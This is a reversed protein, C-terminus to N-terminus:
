QLHSTCVKIIRLFGGVITARDAALLGTAAGPLDHRVLMRSVMTGTMPSTGVLAPLGTNLLRAVQGVRRRAFLVRCSACRLRARTLVRHPNHCHVCSFSSYLLVAHATRYRAVSISTPPLVTRGVNVAACRTSRSALSCSTAESTSAEDVQAAQCRVTRSPTSTRRTVSCCSRPARCTSARRRRVGFM